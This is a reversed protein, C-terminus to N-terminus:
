TVQGLRRGFAEVAAWDTFEMVTAPDTPGGTLYMILRIVARDLRGYAPYNLKGAFVAVERPRWALRRLLKRVYPNSDPRNRNPKRAVLSVSFFGSSKEALRPGLRRLLEAVAPAHRGYRISAGIVIRDYDDLAPGATDRIDMLTVTHGQNEWIERLRSGIKLTHGDTTSYILLFRAM